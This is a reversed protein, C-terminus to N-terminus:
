AALRLDMPFEIVQCSASSDAGLCAVPTESWFRDWYEDEARCNVAGAVFQFAHGFVILSGAIEAFLLAITLDM